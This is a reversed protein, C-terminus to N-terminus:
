IHILSLMGQSRAFGLAAQTPEGNGAFADNVSPGRVERIAPAQHEVVEEAFLIIRRQTGWANLSGYSLRSKALQERAFKEFKALADPIAEAPLEESGIELLITAM